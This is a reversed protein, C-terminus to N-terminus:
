KVSFRKFMPIWKDSKKKKVKYDSGKETKSM